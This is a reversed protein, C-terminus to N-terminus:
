LKEEGVQKSLNNFSNIISDVQDALVSFENKKKLRNLFESFVKDTQVLGKAFSEVEGEAGQIGSNVQNVVSEIVKLVESSKAGSDIIM